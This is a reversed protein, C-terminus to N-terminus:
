LVLKTQLELMRKYYANNTILHTHTGSEIIKGNRMVIIQDAKELNVLRHTILIITKENKLKTILNFIKMESISDLDSTPEDFIMVPADKLLARSLAIKRREGGSLRFGFQGVETNYKEPLSEIFDYIDVEKCVKNIEEITSNHKGLKLNEILTTNFLFTKQPTYAIKDIIEEQTFNNISKNQFIIEGLKVNYFKMLLNILSTKGSGSVGVIATLSKPKVAFSIDYLNFNDGYSFNVNSFEIINESEKIEKNENPIGCQPPNGCGKPFFEKGNSQIKTDIIEFLREAAKSGKDFFQVALPIPQIAEFSAMIGFTIVALYVGNLLNDSVLPIAIVLITILTLNMIFDIVSEYFSNIQSSKKQLNIYKVNLTKIKDSLNNSYDYILLESIGQILDINLENIKARVDIIQNGIKNNIKKIYLPLLLAAVLYFLLYIISFRFDFANLSFFMLLLILTATIIPSIIRVFLPELDEIDAVTRSLLDGTQYKLTISPYLPELSKFFWVRLNKLIRFTASHSILRELYRFVGRSIGFFRVGVIAVQLQGIHPLLAAKSILYASTMMLGLNSGITLFSFITALIMWWKYDSALKLLRFFNKM